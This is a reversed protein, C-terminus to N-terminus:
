FRSRVGAIFALASVIGVLFLWSEPTVGIKEIASQTHYVSTQLQYMALLQQQEFPSLPAAYFMFVGQFLSLPPTVRGRDM